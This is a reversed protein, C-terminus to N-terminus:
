SRLKLILDAAQILDPELLVEPDPSGRPTQNGAWLDVALLVCSAACTHTFSLGEVRIYVAQDM